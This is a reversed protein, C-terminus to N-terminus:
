RLKKLKWHKRLWWRLVFKYVCRECWWCGHEIAGLWIQVRHHASTWSIWVVVRVVGVVPTRIRAVGGVVVIIACGVVVLLVWRRGCHHQIGMKIGRNVLILDMKMQMSTGLLDVLVERMVRKCYRWTSIGQLRACRMRSTGFRLLARLCLYFIRLSRLSLTHSIRRTNPSRVLELDITFNSPVIPFIHQQIMNHGTNHTCSLFM